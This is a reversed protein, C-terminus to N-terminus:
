ISYIEDSTQGDYIENAKARWILYNKNLHATRRIQDIACANM